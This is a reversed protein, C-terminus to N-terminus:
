NAGDLDGVTLVGANRKWLGNELADVVTLIGNTM